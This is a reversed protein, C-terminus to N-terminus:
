AFGRMRGHVWPFHGQAPLGSKRMKRRRKPAPADSVQWSDKTVSLMRRISTALAEDSPGAPFDFDTQTDTNM